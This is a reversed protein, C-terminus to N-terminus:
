FQINLNKGVIVNGFHTYPYSPLKYRCYTPYFVLPLNRHHILSSIIAKKFWITEDLIQLLSLSGITTAGMASSSLLHIFGVFMKVFTHGLTVTQNSTDILCEWIAVLCGIYNCMAALFLLFYDMLKDHLLQQNWNLGSFLLSSDIKVQILM